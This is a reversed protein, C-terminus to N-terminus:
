RKVIQSLLKKAMHIRHKVTGLPIALEKAIEEYKYDEYIHMYLPKYYDYPLQMLAKEMAETEAALEYPDKDLISYQSEGIAQTNRVSLKRVYSFLENNVLRTILAIPTEMEPTYLGLMKVWAQAVLDECVAQDLGSKKKRIHANIKTYNANYFATFDQKIAQM